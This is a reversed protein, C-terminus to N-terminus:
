QLRVTGRREGRTTEHCSRRRIDVEFKGSSSRTFIENGGPELEHSIWAAERATTVAEKDCCRLDCRESPSFRNLRSM